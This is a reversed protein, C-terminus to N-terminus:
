VELTTVSQYLAGSSRRPALCYESFISMHDMPQMMASNKMPSTSNLLLGNKLCFVGIEQLDLLDVVDAAPEVLIIESLGLCEGGVVIELGLVDEIGFPQGRGDQLEIRFCILM